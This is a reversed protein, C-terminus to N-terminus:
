LKGDKALLNPQGAPVTEPEHPVVTDVFNQLVDCMILRALYDAWNCNEEQPLYTTSLSIQIM